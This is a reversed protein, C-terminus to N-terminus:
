DGCGAKLLITKSVLYKKRANEALQILQAKSLKELKKEYNAITKAQLRAYYDTNPIDLCKHQQRHEKNKIGLLIVTLTVLIFVGIGVIFQKNIDKM